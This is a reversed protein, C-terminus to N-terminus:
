RTIDPEPNPWNPYKDRDGTARSLYRWYEGVADVYVDQGVNVDIEVVQGNKITIRCPILASGTTGSLGPLCQIPNALTFKPESM